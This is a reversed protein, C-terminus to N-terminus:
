GQSDDISCRQDARASRIAPVSRPQLSRDLGKWVNAGLHRDHARRGVYFRPTAARRPCRGPSNHLVVELSTPSPVLDAPNDGLLRNCRDGGKGASCSRSYVGSASFTCSHERAPVLAPPTRAPQLIRRKHPELLVRAPSPSPTSCRKWHDFPADSTLWEGEVTPAM